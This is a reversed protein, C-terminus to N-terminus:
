LGKFKLSAVELIPMDEHSFRGLMSTSIIFGGFTWISGICCGCITQLARIIRANGSDDTLVRGLWCIASSSRAWRTGLLCRSHARPPWLSRLRLSPWRSGVAHNDNNSLMPRQVYAHRLGKFQVFWTTMSPGWRPGHISDPLCEPIRPGCISSPLFLDQCTWQQHSIVDVVILRQCQM